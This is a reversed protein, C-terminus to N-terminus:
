ERDPRVANNNKLLYKRKKVFIMSFRHSTALVCMCICIGQETYTCAHMERHWLNVGHVCSETAEQQVAFAGHGSGVLWCM